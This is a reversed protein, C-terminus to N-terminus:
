SIENKNKFGNERIARIRKPSQKSLIMWYLLHEQYVSSVLAVLDLRPKTINESSGMKNGLSGEFEAITGELAAPLALHLYNFEFRLLTDLRQFKRDCM